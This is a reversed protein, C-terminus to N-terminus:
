VTLSPHRRTNTVTVVVREDVIKIPSGRPDGCWVSATTVVILVQLTQALLGKLINCNSLTLVAVM